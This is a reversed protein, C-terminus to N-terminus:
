WAARHGRRPLKGRGTNRLLRSPSPRLPATRAASTIGTSPPADEGRERSRRGPFLLLARQAAIVDHRSRFGRRLSLPCHALLAVCEDIHREVLFRASPTATAIPRCVAGAQAPKVTGCTDGVVVPFSRSRPQQSTISTDAGTRTQSMPPHVSVDNPPGPRSTCMATVGPTSTEIRAVAPGSGTTRSTSVKPSRYEMTGLAGRTARWGSSSAAM